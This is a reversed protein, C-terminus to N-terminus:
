LLFIFYCYNLDSVKYCSILIFGHALETLLILLKAVGARVDRLAPDDPIKAFQKQMGSLYTFGSLDQRCFCMGHKAREAQTGPNQRL